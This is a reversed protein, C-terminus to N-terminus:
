SRSVAIKGSDYSVDALFEVALDLPDCSLDANIVFRVKLEAEDVTQDRHVRITSPVLRPEYHMLVAKLEDAIAAVDASDISRRALDPCGFNLISVRVREFADIDVSSDLSVTNLLADLDRVVEHRLDAETIARAGARRSAIVREGAADRRDVKKKADRERFSDRFAFM